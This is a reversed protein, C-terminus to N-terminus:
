YFVAMVEPAPNELDMGEYPGYDMEILREDTIIPSADIGAEGDPDSKGGRKLIQEATQRARILPSSYIRDFSIGMSRLRDGADAAQSFGSENLSQDSRGQLLKKKNKATEGHRIIYLM